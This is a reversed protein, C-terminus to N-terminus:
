DPNPAGALIEADAFEAFKSFNAVFRRALDKAKLDYAKPDEWTNRPTLVNTPVGACSKPVLVRFIPDQYFEAKELDGNLAATLLGRTVNIDMRKGVGFPGGSWGTNVLWVNANHKAIRDRLLMAYRTPHLPLFPAGFCSSFTASPETVGAETGAVKATYGSIFHYMANGPTLKSIPPLVGFADATLFFVNKPHGAVGQVICNPIHEVPYTVRTNETIQESNYDVERTIPDYVVNELISGFRIADWIQPEKEQSLRIVKAYCGGEFNFIGGDHWGHEDDGVLRRKPDASLTTKGTGSLGFFLAVDNAVGVNASCHMSLVGKLPLIYNLITFISKKIEGGYGTGTLLIIKREFDVLVAAKSKVGDAEGAVHHDAADIITFEPQFNHLEEIKPRVFLTHAFLGHWAKQAIVRIPLRYSPEAGAFGDFVFIDKGQFYSSVRQLIREFNEPSIPKNVDGWWIQESSPERKVIFKDNPSRGTRDGTRVLLAGNAALVGENRSLAHEFLAAPSLNRHVRVINTLGYPRSDFDAV